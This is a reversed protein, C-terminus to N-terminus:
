SRDWMMSRWCNYAEDVSTAILCSHDMSLVHAMAELDSRNDDILLVKPQELGGASQETVSVVPLAMADRAAEGAAVADAVINQIENHDWPKNIFRFVEGDNVSGVIAALDSYGTLLMRMTSPSRKRVESLLEIGQMEPMRQDSIVVDIAQGQLVHLAEQGSTATYVNYKQRFIIRLQNVIREEDDVFLLSPRTNM